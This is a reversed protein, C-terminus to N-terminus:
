EETNSKCEKNACVNNENIKKSFDYDCFTCKKEIIDGNISFKCTPYNSCAWFAKGKWTKKQLPHEKCKPCFAKSMENKIYTCQPYGSCAIFIGYRGTKQTMQKDCKICKIELLEKEKTM